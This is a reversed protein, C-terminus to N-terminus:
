MDWYPINEDLKLFIWEDPELMYNNLVFLDHIIGEPKISFTPKYIFIEVFTKKYDINEISMFAQKLETSIPTTWTTQYIIIDINRCQQLVAELGQSEVNLICDFKINNKSLKEALAECEDDLCSGNELFAIRKNKFIELM